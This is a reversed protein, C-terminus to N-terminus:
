RRTSRRATRTPSKRSSSAAGTAMSASRPADAMGEGVTVQVRYVARSYAVANADVGGTGPQGGTGNGRVEYVYTKGMDAVTLSFVGFSATVASNKSDAADGTAGITLTM